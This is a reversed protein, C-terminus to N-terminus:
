RTHNCALARKVGIYLSCRCMGQIEIIEMEVAIHISVTM